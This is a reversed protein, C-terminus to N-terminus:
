DLIVAGTGQLQYITTGATISAPDFRRKQEEAQHQAFARAQELNLVLKELKGEAVAAKGLSSSPFVIDGDTVKIRLRKGSADVLNMWCGMKECVETVRGKVQVTKGVYSEPTALIREIPTNEKVALPKGLQAEASLAAASILALLVQNRM